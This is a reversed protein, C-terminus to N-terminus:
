LPKAPSFVVTDESQFSLFIIRLEDLAVPKMGMVDVLENELLRLEDCRRPRGIAGGPVGENWCSGADDLWFNSWIVAQSARWSELLASM